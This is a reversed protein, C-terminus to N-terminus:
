AKKVKVGAIHLNMGSNPSVLPSYLANSNVGKGYARKLEKSVHGFGFYAFVTDERVGKTILAKGKQSSYKNYVEIKDGDKIGLRGATKPHIWVAADDLLNNLWLNNGNHSNSRVASKGNIFYLEDNEKYKHPEYSLAGKKSVEELKPSFLKIKKPFDITGEANVHVAASPFKKVFEAVSKKEQLMLPVGFSASGNAKLKALLDINDGVQQLRYDEIDKYPFYAGLGMKEGLEKAVRWPPRSEGIPEVVKQRGVGYSPNKSGSATFEEDRELYTTDPLVVDAFWATDSVQIDYVVVLDMAKLAQIVNEMNSQTMVPNNRAIFWGHLKYGVGPLENLAAHPVLTVIGAGKSALFFESDKEGIRDIRPVDVKPYAPTKPKKLKPAKPEGEGIFQNYFDANKGLYYGGDREVAGVLANVMMMARRLELEQPTFTVRHGYDFIAKPAAKAFERALRKITDAPIDCEVAMKEPTYPEISAKLEDFGECYKEVFKKDYLNENILVHMFALVFPLDHGPKIAHWESSKAAMASLRPELTVVKAGHSLADMYQRAYSIVIGEFVNHGMNIIYKAKAFDRGVSSASFVDQGAMGYALPCTAEHGFLNHSGYAQALHHFWTKTWGSRATFAVTHAGHKQKIEELKKAIFTYAEDWSVEKWKGEGREGVRMIPKVLRQPDYLQNFGASGRACVKGGRSKDKPNGRIFMGKGDEVRAEITCSSTCMECISPTFKTNGKYQKKIDDMAGLTGPISSFGAVAAATSSLKLFSRRSLMQTM